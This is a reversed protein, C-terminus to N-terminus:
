CPATAAEFHRVTINKRVKKCHVVVYRLVKKGADDKWNAAIDKPETEKVAASADTSNSLWNSKSTQLHSFSVLFFSEKQYNRSTKKKESDFSPFSFQLRHM